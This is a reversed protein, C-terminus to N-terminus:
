TLSLRRRQFRLYVFCMCGMITISLDIGVKHLYILEVTYSPICLGNNFLIEALDKRERIYETEYYSLHKTKSLSRKLTEIYNHQCPAFVDM